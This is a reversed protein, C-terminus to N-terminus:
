QECHYDVTSSVFSSFALSMVTCLPMIYNEKFSKHSECCHNHLTIAEPMYAAYDVSLRSPTADLAYSEYWIKDSYTWNNELQFM